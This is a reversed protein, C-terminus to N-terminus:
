YMGGGMGAAAPNDKEPLNVILAGMTITTAAISVANQVAERTVRAPDVVGDKKLDTPQFYLEDTIINATKGDLMRRMNQDKADFLVVHGGQRSKYAEDKLEVKQLQGGKNTLTVKLLENEIITTGATGKRAEFLPNLSDAAEAALKAQKKLELKAEKKAEENAISDPVRIEEAQNRRSYNEYTSFGIMVLLMLALGTLTNKNM